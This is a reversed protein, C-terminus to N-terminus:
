SATPGTLKTGGHEIEIGPWLGESTGTIPDAGDLRIHRRGPLEIVPLKVHSRVRAAADGDFDGELVIGDMHTSLAREAGALLDDGSHLVALTAVGQAAAHRAFAPDGLPGNLLLCNIPTGSLLELTKPDT